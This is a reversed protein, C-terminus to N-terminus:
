SRGPTAGSLFKLAVDRDFRPDHAQYVVGMGGGPGIQRLLRYPGASSRGAVADRLDPAAELAGEDERAGGAHRRGRPLAGPRRYLGPHAVGAAGRPRELAENFLAEIWERRKSGGKNDERPRAGPLFLCPRFGSHNLFRNYCFRSYGRRM